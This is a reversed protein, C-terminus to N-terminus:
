EELEKIVRNTTRLEAFDVQHDSFGKRVPLIRIAEKNAWERAEEKNRAVHVFPIVTGRGLREHVAAIYGGYIHKM